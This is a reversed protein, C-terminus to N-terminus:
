LNFKLHKLIKDTSSEDSCNYKKKIKLLLQEAETKKDPYRLGLEMVAKKLYKYFTQDDVIVGLIGWQFMVGDEFYEEDWSDFSSPFFFGINNGGHGIENFMDQLIKIFEGSMFYNISDIMPFLDEQFYGFIGKLEDVNGALM